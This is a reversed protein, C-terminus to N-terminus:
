DALAHSRSLSGRVSSGHYEQRTYRATHLVLDASSAGPSPYPRVDLYWGLHLSARRLCLASYSHRDAEFVIDTGEIANAAVSVSKEKLLEIHYYTGVLGVVAFAVHGLLWVEYARRRLESMALITLGWWMVTAACGWRWYAYTFDRGLRGNASAIVFYTLSHVNVQFWTMRATWRHWLMLSNYNLGSVATVPSNRGAMLIVLPVQGIALIGSRDALHRAFQDRRSTPGTFFVNVEPPTLRYFAVLASVNVFALVLVVFLEFRLPLRISPGRKTGCLHAPRHHTVSGIAPKVVHGRLWTILTSRRFAPFRDFSAVIVGNGIILM